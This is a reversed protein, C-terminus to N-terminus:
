AEINKFSGIKVLRTGYDQPLVHTFTSYHPNLWDVPLNLEQAVEKILTDLDSIEMGKPIADIDTTSLPIQHALILAGGGGVILKLPAALKNDLHSLANLMLQSTLNM